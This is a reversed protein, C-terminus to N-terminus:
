NSDKQWFVKRLAWAILMAALTAAVVWGYHLQQDQSGHIPTSVANTSATSNTDM